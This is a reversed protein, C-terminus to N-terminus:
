FDPQLKTLYSGFTSGLHALGADDSAQDLAQLIFERPFEKNPNEPTPQLNLPRSQRHLSKFPMVKSSKSETDEQPSTASVSRYLHIQSVREFLM